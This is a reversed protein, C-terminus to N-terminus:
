ERWKFYGRLYLIGLVLNVLFIAPAVALVAYLIWFANGALGYLFGYRKKNGILYITAFTLGMAVYDIGYYQTVLEM